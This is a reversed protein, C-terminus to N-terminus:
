KLITVVLNHHLMRGSSPGNGIYPASPALAFAVDDSWNHSDSTSLLVVLAGESRCDGSGKTVNNKRVLM